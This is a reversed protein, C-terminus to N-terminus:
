DSSSAALVSMQCTLWPRMLSSHTALQSLAAHQYVHPLMGAVPADNM